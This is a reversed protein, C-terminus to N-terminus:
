NLVNDILYCSPFTVDLGVSHDRVGEFPVRVIQTYPSTSCHGESKWFQFVRFLAEEM